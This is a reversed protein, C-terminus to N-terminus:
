PVNKMPAETRLPNTGMVALPASFTAPTSPRCWNMGMWFCSKISASAADPWEAAEVAVGAVCEDVLRLAQEGM